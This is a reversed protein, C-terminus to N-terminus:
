HKDTKNFLKIWHLSRREHLRLKFLFPLFLKFEKIGHDLQFHSNAHLSSFPCFLYYIPSLKLSLLIFASPRLYCVCLSLCEATAEHKSLPVPNQCQLTTENTHPQGSPESATSKKEM